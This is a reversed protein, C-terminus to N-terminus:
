QLIGCFGVGVRIMFAGANFGLAGLGKARFGLGSVGARLGMFGLAFVFTSRQDPSFLPWPPGM